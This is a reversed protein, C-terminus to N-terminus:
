KFVLLPPPPTPASMLGLGALPESTVAMLRPSWGSGLLCGGKGAWMGAEGRWTRWVGRGAVRGDVKRRITERADPSKGKGRDQGWGRMEEMRRRREM